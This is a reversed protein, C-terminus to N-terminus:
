SLLKFLSIKHKSDIQLMNNIIHHHNMWKEMLFTVCKHSDGDSQQAALRKGPEMSQWIKRSRGYHDEELNAESKREKQSGAPEL